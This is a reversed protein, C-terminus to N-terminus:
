PLRHPLLTVRKRLDAPLRADLCADAEHHGYRASLHTLLIHDATLLHAREVLDDLHVHGRRRATDPSIRDDVFTMEMVLLKVKGLVPERDLVDATTDGTFAVLPEDVEDVVQAGNARAAAIEKGSVGQWEPRLKRNKRYVVYGQAPMTHPARFAKAFHGSKLSVTDGVGLEILECDLRNHDLKRWADLVGQLSGIHEPPVVYRARPMGLMKRSACHQVVGGMHDIHAHTFLVTRQRIASQPCVGLDFCLDLTPLQICTGLGATSVADILVGGLEMPETSSSAASVSEDM